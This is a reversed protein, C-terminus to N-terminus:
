QAKEGERGADFAARAAEGKRGIVIATVWLGLFLAGLFFM